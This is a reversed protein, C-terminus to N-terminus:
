WGLLRVALLIRKSYPSKKEIGLGRCMHQLHHKVTREAMDLAAAIQKDSKGLLLEQAVPLESLLLGRRVLDSIELRNM